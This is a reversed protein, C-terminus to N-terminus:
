DKKIDSEKSKIAALFKRNSSLVLRISLLFVIISITAIVLLIIKLTTM